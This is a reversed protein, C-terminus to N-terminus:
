SKCLHSSPAYKALADAVEVLQLFWQDKPRGQRMDMERLTEAFPRAEVGRGSLGVAQVSDRQGEMSELIAFAAAAGMRCALIRDFAMPAGGRQVHGLVATRVEFENKSEAQVVRRIFDTTYFESSKENRLFIVMQKGAKFGNRLTEIDKNLEILSIGREPLYAKEAGSALAGMLALFGCDRGMVEVIFVRHTAGATHRIKDVAEVITNLATDAGISAETCPLNNDITAPVVVIPINLSDFNERQEVLRAVKVYTGWGGIAIIGKINWREINQAIKAFHEEELDFRATGIESAPRNLWGVLQNWNLEIFSGHILGLLADKAGLVSVGQNLLCRAAVSVAANMGPGDAGGTFIAITGDMRKEQSPTIRTLTKVLELTNIFSQGRLERAKEYNGQEIQEGVARSKEAVEVLSTAVVKNKIVGLMHRHCSDSEKIITDVAAAGLRTALIRDFATPSGGRQVHGLVTVRVDIGLKNTLIEKIEETRIPLGDLHKTGEAVVVMHHPRGIQRAQEISEIMKKHWDRDLEVEPLLVWAAGGALAAALALYGCHRGMTEVVFTRQHSAATSSLDDLARVIHNLATDAGICMDTGYLDNDISGPLGIVQLTYDRPKDIGTQALDKNIEQLHESWESSLVHAGMLSGDGGIVVMAEIGHQLMNRVAQRRGERSRFSRSRATGLFTGGRQLIGGVDKWELPKIAEEGNVLGEYGDYIGYVRLGCDLARRVVARIAANMGPSDGGSTMVALTSIM